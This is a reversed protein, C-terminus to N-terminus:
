VALPTDADSPAPSTAELRWTMSGDAACDLHAMFFGGRHQWFHPWIVKRDSDPIPLTELAAPDHWELRGEEFEMREVRVARTVEYVFILWHGAGEYACESVIGTLHLDDATITLGAEEQVERVACATPSEGLTMELKGGIPSYLDANPPRRRHLLLLRGAEDFLIVLVAIRYPLPPSDAHM